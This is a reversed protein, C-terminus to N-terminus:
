LFDVLNNVTKRAGFVTVYEGNVIYSRGVREINMMTFSKIEPDFGSAFFTNIEMKIVEEIKIDFPNNYITKYDVGFAPDDFHSGKWTLIGLRVSQAIREEGEVTEILGGNGFVISGAEDVKWNKM